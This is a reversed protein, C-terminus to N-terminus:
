MVNGRFTVSIQPHTTLVGAEYKPTGTNLGTGASQNDESRYKTVKRLGELCIGPYYTFNPWLRKREFDEQENNLRYNQALSLTM